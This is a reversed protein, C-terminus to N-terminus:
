DMIITPQHDAPRLLMYDTMVLEMNESSANSFNAEAEAAVFAKVKLM